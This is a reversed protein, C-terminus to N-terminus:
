ADAEENVGGIYEFDIERKALSVGKVRVMIKDGIRFVNNTRAGRLALEDQFFEYMDDKLDVVRVLGEVTNELEVFFGFGTVSSIIGEYEEDIHDLMYEAMKLDDVEREAEEANRETESSSQAVPGLINEYHLKRKDDFQGKLFEKIIRHIQLDPYRRIPSTFHSYYTSALGFHGEQYDTYKAQRLSRLMLKSIIHEEKKGKVKEVLAQLEKPHIEELNGKLSYGFNYIFKSFDTIKELSPIEHTRYLFPMELWYFHESIVENALIMFEEIMRNAIRRERKAIDIPKGIEDLIIQSEAFDFDISGREERKKRLILSLDKMGELFDRIPELAANETGDELFSSVDDYILRYSSRIVAEYIEHGLIKGDFGIEVDVSLTLRDVEPNLSCIGNSLEEPLMPIVRDVLYVSTGRKLAEKDLKSGEKVYHTVDAIHVGLLYSNDTKRLSIADDFDKADAGDITVILENRLDKRGKIENETISEEIATAENIVKSPFELPLDHSMIISLIDVGVDDKSGLIYSVEGEAKRGNEPWRTIRVEVVDDNKAGNFARKPVFIDQRVKKDDPVVFAFNDQMEFVGIIKEKRRKLVAEVMGESKSGNGGQKTVTVHVTDGNMATALYRAPIFIDKLSEDDPILFGFGKETVQIRGRILNNDSALMFKGKRTQILYGEKVMENLVSDIMGTESSDVELLRVVDSTHMASRENGFIEMIKEKIM